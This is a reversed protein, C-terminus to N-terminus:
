DSVIHARILHLKINRSISELDPDTHPSLRNHPMTVPHSPILSPCDTVSVFIVNYDAHGNGLMLRIVPLIGQAWALFGYEIYSGFRKISM